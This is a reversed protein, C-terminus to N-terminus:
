AETRSDATLQLFIEELSIDNSRMMLIPLKQKALVAFVDRRVDADTDAEVVVETTGAEVPDVAQVDRVGKVGGLAELVATRPGAVRLALRGAGLIRRGLNDPADSAVIRGRSIILVRSCVMAVEHLIHSSLLITHKKGLDRILDRIDKIQHPDLGITPEDLILVPPDGILAQAFGVRQKYGKSLNKILRKRVDRIMVQEMIRDLDSKRDARKVNKLDYVFNLYEDVTMDMYVPPFEPLYGIKRKVAEPEELVDKGDVRVAGETASLYGTIINMTTTKGAGNPGLFGLIEGQNVNFNLHDVAVHKGYRKTVNEVQIM